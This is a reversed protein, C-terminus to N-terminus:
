DDDGVLTAMAAMAFSVTSAVTRVNHWRNWATEYTHRQEAVADDTAEDLSFAELRDNLAVNGRVTVGLVGVVYLAAAGALWWGRATRGSRFAVIAALILVLATGMFTGLFAPNLIERNISQMTSVYTRDAVLRLGPIAAVVWAFWLGAMLGSALLAAILTVDSATM